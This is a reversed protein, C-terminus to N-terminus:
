LLDPLCVSEKGRGTLFHLLAKGAPKTPMKAMYEWPDAPSRHLGELHRPPKAGDIYRDAREHEDGIFGIDHPCNLIMGLIGRAAIICRQFHLSVYPEDGLVWSDHGPPVYFVDGPKVEVNTGDDMAIMARGSLVM